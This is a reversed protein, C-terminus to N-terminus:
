GVARAPQEADDRAPGPAPQAAEDRDGVEDCLDGLKWREVTPPGVFGGLLDRVMARAQQERDAWLLCLGLPGADVGHFLGLIPPADDVSEGPQPAADLWMYKDDAAVICRAAALKARIEDRSGVVPYRLDVFERDSGLTALVDDWLWGDSGVDLLFVTTFVYAM